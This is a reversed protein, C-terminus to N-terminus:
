KNCAVAQHRQMSNPVEGWLILLKIKIIFISTGDALPLLQRSWEIKRLPAARIM